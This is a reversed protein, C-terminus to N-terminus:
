VKFEIIVYVRINQILILYDCVRINQILSLYDCVPINKTIVNIM